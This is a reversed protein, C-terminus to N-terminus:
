GVHKRAFAPDYYIEQVFRQGTRYDKKMQIVVNILPYLLQLIDQRDLSAGVPSTKIMLSMRIFAEKASNAHISTITGPHGSNLVNQLFFFIEDGRLEAPIVRDPRNRLSSEFIDKATAKSVGDGHKSYLLHLRNPHNSRSERADEVFLLRDQQPIIQILANAATTKGSGTSGSFVFNKREVLGVTLFEKWRGEHFHELMEAEEDPLDAELEAREEKSLLRSQSRRVRDFAGAALLQDLSLVNENPIRIAIAITGDPTIPPLTVEIREGRPLVGSFIGKPNDPDHNNFNAMLRAIERCWSLNAAPLEHITWGQSTETQVICPENIVIDTIKPDDLLHQICSLRDNM